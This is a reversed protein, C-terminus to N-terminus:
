SHMAAWGSSARLPTERLVILFTYSRATQGEKLENVNTQLEGFLLVLDLNSTEVERLQVSSDGRPGLASHKRKGLTGRALDLKCGLCLFSLSGVLYTVNKALLVQKLTKHLVDFRCWLGSCRLRRCLRRGLSDGGLFGSCLSGSRCLLSGSGGLFLGGLRLLLNCPLGFSSCRGGLLGSYSGFSTSGFLYTNNGKRRKFGKNMTMNLIPQWQCLAWEKWPWLQQAWSWVQTLPLPPWLMFPSSIRHHHNQTSRQICWM